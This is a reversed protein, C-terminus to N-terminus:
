LTAPVGLMLDQTGTLCRLSIIIHYFDNRKYTPACGRGGHLTHNSLMAFAHNKRNYLRGIMSDTSEILLFPVSIINYLYLFLQIFNFSSTPIAPDFLVCILNKLSLRM